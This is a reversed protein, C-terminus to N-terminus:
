RSGASTTRPLPSTAGPREMRCDSTCTSMPSVDVISSRLDGHSGLLVRSRGDSAIESPELYQSFAPLHELPAPLAIWLQYGRVREGPVMDGGHWVGGGAQM